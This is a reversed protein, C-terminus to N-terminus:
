PAPAERDLGTENLIQYLARAEPAPGRRTGPALVQVALVEPGRPITLIDGPAVTASSKGLRNGNLRILGSEAARQALARTKYFRAHWLWKDIRLRGDM